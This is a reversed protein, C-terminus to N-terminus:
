FSDAVVLASLRNGLLLTVNSELYVINYPNLISVKFDDTMLFFPAECPYCETGAPIDRKKTKANVKYKSCRLPAEIGPPAFSDLQGFEQFCQLCSSQPQKDDKRSGGAVAVITSADAMDSDDAMAALNLSVLLPCFIAQSFLSIM